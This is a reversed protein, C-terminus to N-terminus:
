CMQPVQLGFMLGVTGCPLQLSTGRGVIVGKMTINLQPQTHMRAECWDVSAAQPEWKLKTQYVVDRLLQVFLRNFTAPTYLCYM